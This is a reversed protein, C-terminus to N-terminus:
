RSPLEKRLGSVEQRLLVIERELSALQDLLPREGALRDLIPRRPREQSVVQGGGIQASALVIVAMALSNFLWSRIM